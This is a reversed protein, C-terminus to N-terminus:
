ELQFKIPIVVSRVKVSKGNMKGPTWKPMLQVVRMAEEDTGGGLPKIIKINTLSGDSDVSFSISVRGQIGMKEAVKPYGGLNKSIFKQMEVFGGPFEPMEQIESIDYDEPAIEVAKVEEVEVQEFADMSLNKDGEQDIAGVNDDQLEEITKIEENVQDDPKPVPPLFKTIEVKPPEPPPPPPPTKSEDPPPAEYTTVKPKKVVYEEEEKDPFLYTNIVPAAIALIFISAASVVAIMVNKEYLRRLFYAGYAQNKDKFILDLWSQKFILNDAM